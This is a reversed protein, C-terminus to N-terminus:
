TFQYLIYDEVVLLLDLQLSMLKNLGQINWTPPIFILQLTLYKSLLVATAM